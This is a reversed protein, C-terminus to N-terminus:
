SEADPVEISTIRHLPFRRVEGLGEDVGELVGGGVGVPEVLRRSAVGHADVIGVWVSRRDRVAHRLVELTMSTDTMGAAPPPTVMRGRRGTAQDGVRLQRVVAALQAEAPASPPWRHQHRRPRAPARRGSPRLDLVQGDPGEATPAFGAERLDALLEVLPVPCVVVTPAIRRLGLRGAMPSALVETLMAEDECRLFAGAAGARLTGHRRAVDDILYDLGQPVPTRSADRFLDHLDGATRGADLARRVSAESVRYVTAGGASEVDAVLAIRAALEPRLPGPAVVTLDAQVLVHDIPEPLAENLSTIAAAPGDALLTRGASTLAGRAVIGLTTAEHLTWRVVDDRLRGGRRPARWTLLGILGDPDTIGAGEGLEALADLVRRRDRIALPHRLEDSLPALPRGKDDRRGALGLLRPLDLWASALAAWRQGTPAALWTDAQTTVTWEAPTGESDVVLDAGVALEALLAARGEDITLERALRRQERVGLGGSRLVPPPEDSWLTLLSEVQRLLELVDGAGAADVAKPDHDTTTLVPEAPEVPGLPRDGRLALGVQRPLEVTESDRRMLLGIALLQSIPTRALEVPVVTAAEKTRGIPPGQALAALPRLTAEDLDAILGALDVDALDASVAGLGAPFPGVAERAAPVISLELDTGYVIALNRLREVACTTAAPTADPGVLAIVTGIPVPAHDADAVVLAALATLTFSDLEDCARAVSAQTGARTALVSTNAPPPAALDPRAGLLAVLARDDRARLWDAFAIASM